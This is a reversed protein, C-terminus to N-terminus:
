FSDRGQTVIFRAIRLFTYYLVDGLRDVAAISAAGILMLLLSYEVLDQGSEERLVRWLAFRIKELRTIQNGQKM